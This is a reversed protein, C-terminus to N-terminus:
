QVLGKVDDDEVDVKMTVLVQMMMTMWGVYWLM